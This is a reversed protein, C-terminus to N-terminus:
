GVWKSPLLYWLISLNALNKLYFTHSIGNPAMKRM